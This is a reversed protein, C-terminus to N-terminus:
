KGTVETQFEKILKKVMERDGNKEAEKIKGEYTKKLGESKGGLFRSLYERYEEKILDKDDVREFPFVM